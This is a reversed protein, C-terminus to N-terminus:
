FPWVSKGNTHAPEVPKASRLLRPLLRNILWVSVNASRFLDEKRNVIPAGVASAFTISM